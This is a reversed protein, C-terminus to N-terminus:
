KWDSLIIEYYKKDEKIMKEIISTLEKVTPIKHKSKIRLIKYGQSKVFEDRRRDYQEREKGSHWYKGDYEIDICVNNIKLFIDLNVRSLSYNLECVSNPYLLKLTEFLELQQSSTPIDGKEKLTKQAKEYVDPSCLPSNGGYKENVTTLFIDKILPNNMPHGGYKKNWTNIMKEKVKQNRVPVEEGYKKKNTEKIRRRIEKQFEPLKHVCEGCVDKGFRENTTVHHEHRRVFEKGCVDCIRKEQVGSYRPLDSPKVLFRKDIEKYGKDLYYNKSRTHSSIEILENELIM